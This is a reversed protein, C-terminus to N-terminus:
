KGARTSETDSHLDGTGAKVIFNATHPRCDVKVVLNDMVPDSRREAVPARVIVAIGIGALVGVVVAQWSSDSLYITLLVALIVGSVAKLKVDRRIGGHVQWDILIPGLFRSRLLRSNLQPSSRVFFYSALLLFPTTPLGPIFVGAFAVVVFLGGLLVFFFKATGHL